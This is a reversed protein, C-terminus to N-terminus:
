GTLRVDFNRGLGGGDAHHLTFRLTGGAPLDAPRLEAAHVLPLPATLPTDTSTDWGDVTWRLTGPRDSVIRLPKAADAEAIPHAPCWFTADFGRRGDRAYRDHCPGIRDFPEGDCLSRALNLYTAHSWCLPMASGAPGGFELDHDPDDPFRWLQEPLMGGPNAFAALADLYPGAPEGAALAYLGREGTLLPWCGGVGETDFASGDRKQGYGDHNYRLYGPGGPLDHKLVADAVRVSAAVTADDAPRVGYRVLQLFGLDVVDRAPHTGGGNKLRVEATDVSGPVPTDGAEAPNIRVFHRPEGDVLTGRTTVTWAEVHAALWDAYDHVFAAAAAEGAEAFGEAAVCLAAVCTALTSPSYGSNEEWREQPTVPGSHILKAAARRVVAPTALGECAGARRLRWALLAPAAVEDLQLGPWFPEGDLWANQPIGGDAQQLCALYTMARRPTATEGAALLATAAHLLDRPWVLHYGGPDADSQHAGWPISLSATMAGQYTKDEHALLVCRSLRALGGGDGCQAELRNLTGDCGDDLRKWQRLFSERKEDFRDGLAQLLACASSTASDGFGLGLVATRGPASLDLEGTLAVTGDRAETFSWALDFGDQLDQYGDSSGSYGVSRRLFGPRAGMALHTGDRWARLLPEGALDCAAAHNGRGSGGAHPALLAFVRLKEAYTSDLVELRIRQLLVPQHPDSLVDKVVRYRGGPDTNTLRYALTDEDPREVAHTLDRREEHLFTEGDTILLQLDRTNPQDATPHYVENVVGHSLTFWLRSATHYATGVGVKASSTWRPEIGPAGFAESPPDPM